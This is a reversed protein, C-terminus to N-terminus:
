LSLVVLISGLVDYGKYFFIRTMVQTDSMGTIDVDPIYKKALDEYNYITGNHVVAMLPEGTGKKKLVVPQAQERGTKMGPSTKRCHGLAITCDKIGKLLESKTFYNAFYKDDGEIGYDTQGDIFMGCSDGGRSDNINGMVCYTSYDFKKPKPNIIGFVNINDKPSKIGLNEHNQM